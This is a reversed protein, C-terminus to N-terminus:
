EQVNSLLPVGNEGYGITFESARGVINTFLPIGDERITREVPGLRSLNNVPGGTDTVGIMALEETSRSGELGAKEANLRTNKEILELISLQKQQVAIQERTAERTAEGLQSELKLSELVREDGGRKAIALMEQLIPQREQGTEAASLQSKLNWYTSEDLDRQLKVRKEEIVGSRQRESAARDIAPIYQGQILAEQEAKSTTLSAMDKIVAAQKELVSARESSTQTLDLVRGLERMRDSLVDKQRKNVEEDSLGLFEQETKIQGQRISLIASSTTDRIQAIKQLYENVPELLWKKMETGVQAIQLASKLEMNAIEFTTDRVEKTAKDVGQVTKLWELARENTEVAGEIELVRQAKIRDQQAKVAAIHAEEIARIPEAIINGLAKLSGERQASEVFGKGVEQAAGELHAKASKYAATLGGMLIAGTSPGAGPAATSVGQRERVINIAERLLTEDVGQLTGLQRVTLASQAVMADALSAIDEPKIEAILPKGSKAGELSALVDEAIKRSWKPLEETFPGTGAIQARLAEPSRRMFEERANTLQDARTKRFSDDFFARFPTTITPQIREQYVDRSIASREQGQVKALEGLAAPLGISLVNVVGHMFTKGFEYGLPVAIKVLKSHLTEGLDDIGLLDALMGPLYMNGTDTFREVFIATIAEGIFTAADSVAAKITGILESLEPGVAQVIDRFGTRLTERNFGNKEIQERMTTLGEGIAILVGHTEKRIQTMPEVMFDFLAIQIAEAASAVIQVTNKYTSRIRETLSATVGEVNRYSDAMEDARKAGATMLVNMSTMARLGALSNSIRNKESASLRNYADSIDALLEKASRQYTMTRGYADTEKRTLSIHTGTYRNLEQIGTKVSGIGASLRAYISRLMRGAQGARINQNALIGLHAAVDALDFGAEKAVPGVFKLAQAMDTVSAASTLHAQNLVDHVKILNRSYQEANKTDLGFQRMTNASIDIAKKLELHRSTAFDAMQGLSQTIKAADFGMQIYSQTGEAMQRYTHETISGQRKVEGIVSSISTQAEQSATATVLLMEKIEMTAQQFDGGVNLIKGMYETIPRFVRAAFILGKNWTNWVGVLRTTSHSMAKIKNHLWSKTRQWRTAQKNIAKLNEVEQVTVKVIGVGEKYVERTTRALEGSAATAAVIEKKVKTYTTAAATQTRSVGATSDISGALAGSPTKSSKSIPSGFLSGSPDYTSEDIKIPREPATFGATKGTRSPTPLTGGTKATISDVLKQTKQLNTNVELVAANIEQKFHSGVQSISAKLNNVIKATGSSPGLTTNLGAIAATLKKAEGSIGTFDSGLKEQLKLMKMMTETIQNFARVLQKEDVATLKLVDASGSAAM